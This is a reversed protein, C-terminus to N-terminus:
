KLWRKKCEIAGLSERVRVFMRYEQSMEIPEKILRKYGADLGELVFLLEITSDMQQAEDDANSLSANTIQRRIAFRRCKSVM